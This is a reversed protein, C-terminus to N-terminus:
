IFATYIVTPLSFRTVACLNNVNICQAVIGCRDRYLKSYTKVQSCIFGPLQQPDGILTLHTVNLTLPILAEPEIAQGAEDVICLAIRGKLSNRISTNTQLM